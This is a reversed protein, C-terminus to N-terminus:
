EITVSAREQSTFRGPPWALLESSYLVVTLFSQRQVEVNYMGEHLWWPSEKGKGKPVQTRYM